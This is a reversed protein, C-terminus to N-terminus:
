DNQKGKKKTLTLGAKQCLFGVIYDLLYAEAEMGPKTEGVHQWIMQVAHMAEHAFVCVDRCKTPIYIMVAFDGSKAAKASMTCAYACNIMNDAISLEMGLDECMQECGIRDQAFGLSVNYPQVLTWDRM